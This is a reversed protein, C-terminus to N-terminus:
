PEGRPPALARRLGIRGRACPMKRQSGARRASPRAARRVPQARPSGAPIRPTRPSGASRARRDGEADDGRAVLPSNWRPLLVTGILRVILEGPGGARGGRRQQWRGVAVRERMRRQLKRAPQDAEFHQWREGFHRDRGFERARRRQGRSRASRRRCPPSGAASPSVRCGPGRRPTSGRCPSSGATAPASSRSFSGVAAGLVDILPLTPVPSVRAPIMAVFPVASLPVVRERGRAGIAVAAQQRQEHVGGDVQDRADRRRCAM